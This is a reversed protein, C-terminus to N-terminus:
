IIEVVQFRFGGDRERDQMQLMSNLQQMIQRRIIRLELMNKAIYLNYLIIVTQNVNLIAEIVVPPTYFATLTSERAATYEEPSLISKLEEYDSHNEDFRDSLGGWGSYDALLKQESETALKNEDELQHLLRIARINREYKDSPVRVPLDEAKLKHDIRDNFDVEPHFVQGATKPKPKQPEQM